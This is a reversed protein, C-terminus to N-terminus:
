MTKGMVAVDWLSYGYPLAREVGQLKVFRANVPTLHITEQGGQGDNQTYVKTYDTGNQSVYIEYKKGYSAEWNLLVQSIKCNSGLDMVFWADDAFNSSWRTGSNNDTLNEPGFVENESGSATVSKGAALDIVDGTEEGPNELPDVIGSTNDTYTGNTSGEEQYVRVYEVQMTAPLVSEDVAVGNDFWGGLALNMIIFFEQDFPANVNGDSGTSFWKESTTLYFCKGDVYWKIIGEEWVVSYVHFDTDFREGNKFANDKGVYKNDPWVGGYHITGSTSGPLRGRAEMVDIEGSAAWTGYTDDNPLLWLAPWLGDGSPLKACFDIRGYKFTFNDRSVVKGSSYPAVRNPDQEFTAPEYYAKLNLCGDTVFINKTSETYYELEANGWGWTTPDDNIFYGPDYSWKTSDLTTGNFEDNWILNWGEVNADTPTGLEIDYTSPPKPRPAAPNGIFTYTVYNNGITGGKVGNTPYGIRFEMNEQIPQFWLGYINDVWYGWQNDDSFDDYGNGQYSFGSGAYDDIAVWNGDVKVEYVFNGLESQRPYDGDIMPLPLGIAGTQGATYSTTEASLKYQTRVPENYIITYDVYVNPSSKSAVRVITTKDVTFWYGGGGDWFQGFNQDYVWGSAANNDLDIWSNTEASWVYAKLDEAVQEYTISADGNFTPYTFGAGGTIGANIMPGQTATMSTIALKSLKTFNFTYDLTVSPNAKSALRLQTTESVTFWYGNFGGDSWYGWNSNYSYKSLTNIDKWVGDVKISLSLDSQVESWTNNGGNFVPMVFGYSANSVGSGNIIPGDNTSFYSMSSIGVGSAAQVYGMGGAPIALGAAIMAIALLLSIIQNGRRRKNRQNKKWMNM